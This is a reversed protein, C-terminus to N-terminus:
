SMVSWMDAASSVLAATAYGGGNNLRAYNPGDVLVSLESLSVNTEAQTFTYTFWSPIARRLSIDSTITAGGETGSLAIRVDNFADAISTAVAITNADVKITYVGIPGPYSVGGITEDAFFPGDGTEYAHATLTLTDAGTDVSEVVDDAVVLPRRKQVFTGTALKYNPLNAPDPVYVLGSGIFDTGANGPVLAGDKWVEVDIQRKGAVVENKQIEAAM